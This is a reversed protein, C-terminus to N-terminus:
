HLLVKEKEKEHGSENNEPVSSIKTHNKVDSKASDKKEDVASVLPTAAKHASSEKEDDSGSSDEASSTPSSSSSTNSEDESDSKFSVLIKKEDAAISIKEGRSM